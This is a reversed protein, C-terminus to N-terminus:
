KQPGFRLNISLSNGPVINFDAGIWHFNLTNILMPLFTFGDINPVVSPRVRYGWLPGVRYGLSYQFQHFFFEKRYLVRSIGGYITQQSYSNAFTGLFFGNYQLGILNNTDRFHETTGFHRAWMGLPISTPAAQGKLFHLVKAYTSTEQSVTTDEDDSLTEDKVERLKFYPEPIQFAERLDDNLNPFSATDELPFSNFQEHTDPLAISSDDHAAFLVSAPQEILSPIGVASEPVAAGANQPTYFLQGLLLLLIMVPYVLTKLMMLSVVVKCKFIDIVDYESAQCCFIIGRVCKCAQM